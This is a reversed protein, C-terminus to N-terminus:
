FSQFGGFLFLEDLVFDVNFFVFSELICEMLSEVLVYEQWVRCFKLWDWVVLVQYELEWFQFQIFDMFRLLELVEQLFGEFVVGVGEERDGIVGEEYGKQSSLVIGNYFLFGQLLSFSEVGLNRWGFQEVFLGGLFYVMELLFGLFLFDEWVEEEIFVYFGIVLFLFGVDLIFVLM